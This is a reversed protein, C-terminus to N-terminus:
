YRTESVEEAIGSIFKVRIVKDLEGEKPALIRSQMLSYYDDMTGNRITISEIMDRYQHWVVEEGDFAPLRIAPEGLAIEAAKMPTGRIVRNKLIAEKVEPDVPNLTLFLDIPEIEFIFGDSAGRFNVRLTGGDLDTVSILIQSESIRKAQPLQLLRAMLMKGAMSDNVKRTGVMRSIRGGTLDFTILSASPIGVCFYTGPSPPILHRKLLSNTPDFLHVRKSLEEPLGGIKGILGPLKEKIYRRSPEPLGHGEVTRRLSQTTASDNPPLDPTPAGEPSVGQLITLILLLAASVTTQVNLLM